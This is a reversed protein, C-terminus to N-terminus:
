PTLDSLYAYEQQTYDPESPIILFNFLLLGISIISNNM